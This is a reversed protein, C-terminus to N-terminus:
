QVGWLKLLTEGRQGMSTYVIQKIPSIV